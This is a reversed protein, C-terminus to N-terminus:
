FVGDTALMANSNMTELTGTSPPLGNVYRVDDASIDRGGVVPELAATFGKFAFYHTIVMRFYLEQKYSPPFIFVGMFIKPLRTPGDVYADPGSVADGIAPAMQYTPLWGLRRLGSTIVFNSIVGSSGVGEDVLGKVRHELGVIGDTPPTLVGNSKVMAIDGETYGYIYGNDDSAYAENPIIPLGAMMPHVMPQLNVRAGSQVNFKRFSPDGLASYYANEWRGSSVPADKRDASFADEFGGIQLTSYVVNLANNLSEGHCGHFLIPNLLDRPDITEGAEWSVQLPDAPLQAAPVLTVSCGMYKFKRFQSFFGKLPAMFNSDTPTHIGVIGLKGAVTSLDYIEQYTAQAYNTAKM